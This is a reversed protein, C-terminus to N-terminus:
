HFYLLAPLVDLVEGLLNVSSYSRIASVGAPPFIPRPATALPVHTHVPWWFFVGAEVDESSVGLGRASRYALSRLMVCILVHIVGVARAPSARCGARM